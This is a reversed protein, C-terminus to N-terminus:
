EQESIAPFSLEVALQILVLSNLRRGRDTGLESQQNLRTKDKEKDRRWNYFCFATTMGIRIVLSTIDTNNLLSHSPRCTM